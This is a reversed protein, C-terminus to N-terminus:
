ACVSFPPSRSRRTPSTAGPMAAPQRLVVSRHPSDRCNSATHTFRATHLGDQAYVTRDTHLGNHAYVTVTRHTFRETHLGNQTYVTRHTFRETGSRRPEQRLALRRRPRAAPLLRHHPVARVATPNHTAKFSAWQDARYTHVLSTAKHIRRGIPTRTQSASERGLDHLADVRQAVLQPRQLVQPHADAAAHVEVQHPSYLRM